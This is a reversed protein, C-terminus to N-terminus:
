KRMRPDFLFRLPPDFRLKKFDSHAPNVLVNDETPSVVSPVRLAVSSRGALWRSGLEQLALPAPLQQWDSPLGTRPLSEIAVGAPIVARILILDDPLESADLHVFYELQALSPSSACYVARVGRLNWRGPYLRAGEGSFATDHHRQRCIRWIGVAAASM